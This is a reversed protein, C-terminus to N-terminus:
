TRTASASARVRLEDRMGGSLSMFTQFYKRDVFM